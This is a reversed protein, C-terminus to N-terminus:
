KRGSGTEQFSSSLRGWASSSRATPEIRADRMVQPHNIVDANVRVVSRSVPAGNVFTERSVLWLAVGVVIALAVAALAGGLVWRFLDRRGAATLFALLIACILTGEIGERAFILFSGLM